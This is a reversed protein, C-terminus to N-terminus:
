RLLRHRRQRLHPDRLRQRGNLWAQDDADVMASVALPAVFFLQREKDIEQRELTCGAAIKPIGGTQQHVWRNLKPARRPLASRWHHSFDLAVRFPVGAPTTPTPATM